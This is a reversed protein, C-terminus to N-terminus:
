TRETHKNRSFYFLSARINLSHGIASLVLNVATLVGHSCEISRIGQAPQADRVARLCHPAHQHIFHLTMHLRACMKVGVLQHSKRRVTKQKNTKKKEKLNSMTGRQMGTRFVTM